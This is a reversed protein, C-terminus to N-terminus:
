KKHTPVPEPMYKHFKGPEHQHEFQITTHTIGFEGAVAKCILHGIRESESTSMDLIHVHCSM